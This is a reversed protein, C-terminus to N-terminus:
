RAIQLKYPAGITEVFGSHRVPDHQPEAAVDAKAAVDGDLSHCNEPRQTGPWMRLTKTTREPSNLEACANAAIDQRAPYNGARTPQWM